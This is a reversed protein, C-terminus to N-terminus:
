PLLPNLPSSPISGNVSALADWESGLSIPQNFSRYFAAAGHIHLYALSGLVLLFFLRCAVQRGGRAAEEVGPVSAEEPLPDAAEVHRSWGSMGPPFRLGGVGKGPDIPRVGISRHTIMLPSVPLPDTPRRTTTKDREIRVPFAFLISRADIKEGDTSSSGSIAPLARERLRRWGLDIGRAMQRRHSPTAPPRQLLIRRGDM